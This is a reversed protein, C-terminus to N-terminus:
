RITSLSDPRQLLMKPNHLTKMYKNNELIRRQEYNLLNNSGVLTFHSTSQLV